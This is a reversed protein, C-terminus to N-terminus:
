ILESSLYSHPSVAWTDSTSSLQLHKPRTLEDLDHAMRKKAFELDSIRAEQDVVIINGPYLGRHVWGAKHLCILGPIFHSYM